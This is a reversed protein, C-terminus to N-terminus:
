TLLIGTFIRGSRIGLRRASFFSDHHEYTCIGSVCINMLNVGAEELLQANAGWLDIHPRVVTCIKGEADEHEMDMQRAISQTDFGAEAFAEVIEDGVEFAKQSISPGILAHLEAPNTQFATQMRHVTKTVIRKVTGRWGAHIAAVAENQPDFLLVPVCDATSVGICLGTERTILADVGDLLDRRQAVSLQMTEATIEEIRDSHTQRPMVLREGEIGLEGALWLRNSAVRQPDDECYDTVNFAAYAGMRREEESSISHPPIRTTSFAKVKSSPGIPYTLITNSTM